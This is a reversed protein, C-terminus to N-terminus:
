YNNNYNKKYNNFLILVKFPHYFLYSLLYSILYFPHYFILFSPHFILLLFSLLFAVLLFFAPQQLFLFVQTHAMKNNCYIILHDKKPFFQCLFEKLFPKLHILFQFISFSHSQSDLLYLLILM